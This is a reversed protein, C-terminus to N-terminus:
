SGTASRAANGYTIDELGPSWGCRRRRGAGPPGVLVMFEGDAVELDLEHIAEFGNPYIKTVQELSITAM